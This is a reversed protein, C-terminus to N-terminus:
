ATSTFVQASTSIYGDHAKGAGDTQSTPPTTRVVDTTAAAEISAEWGSAEPTTAYSTRTAPRSIPTATAICNAPM